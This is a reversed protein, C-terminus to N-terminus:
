TQIQHDIHADRLQETLAADDPVFLLHIRWRRRADELPITEAALARRPERSVYEGTPVQEFDEREFTFITLSFTEIAERDGDIAFIPARTGAPWDFRLAHLRQEREADGLWVRLRWVKPLLHINVEDFPAAYLVREEVYGDRPRHDSSSWDDNRWFTRPEFLWEERPPAVKYLM